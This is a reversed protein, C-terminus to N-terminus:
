PGGHGQATRAEGTIGHQLFAEGATV